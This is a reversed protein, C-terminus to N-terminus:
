CEGLQGEGHRCGQSTLGTHARTTAEAGGRERRPHSVPVAGAGGRQGVQKDIWVRWM